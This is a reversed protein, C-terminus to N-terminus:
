IQWSYDVKDKDKNKDNDKDEQQDHWLPRTEEDKQDIKLIIMHGRCSEPALIM